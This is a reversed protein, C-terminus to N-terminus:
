PRAGRNSLRDSYDVPTALFAPPCLPELMYPDDIWILSGSEGAVGFPKWGTYAGLQNKANVFGCVRGADARVDRFRASPYDM